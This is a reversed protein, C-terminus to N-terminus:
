GVPRVTRTLFKGGLRICEDDIGHALGPRAHTEVDLGLGTLVREANELCAFPLVPDEIGHTLLIPPRSRIEKELFPEGVVHGSYSIIAALPKERRLGVFLSMMAGQSFGILILRDEALGHRALEADIFADLIGAATRAGEFLADGSVDQLSFWQHGFPAMDFPFPANPSVFHAAPLTKQFHPALGILDNGDAGVGHLFIVLYEPRDGIAPAIEPGSLPPVSDPM